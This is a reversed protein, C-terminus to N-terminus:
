LSIAIRRIQDGSLPADGNINYLVGGNVWAANNDYTYITLGREETTIFQGKSDKNVKNKVASSDWPSKSQKIIFKSDGTNANFNITVEGDSYTVPGNLSYGDPQYEPYTANIGAQASAVRVSLSPINVYTFYGVIILLVISLSLINFLKPYCKFINKKKPQPTTKSLAATIAENKIDKSSKAVPKKISSINKLSRKKEVKTALPHKVPQIDASQHKITKQKVPTPIPHKAFRTVNKNRAIDMNHGTKRTSQRTHIASREAPRRHLLQSKQTISHISSRKMITPKPSTALETIALGTISDYKKGNITVIKENKM